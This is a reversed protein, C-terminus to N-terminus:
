EWDEGNWKKDYLEHMVFSLWLQEFSTQDKVLSLPVFSAFSYILAANCWYDRRDRLMEQLQDQRPLWIPTAGNKLFIDHSRVGSIIGKDDTPAGVLTLPFSKIQEQIETAKECMKIYNVGCDM